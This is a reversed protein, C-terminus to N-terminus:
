KVPEVRTVATLKALEELKRVDITGALMKVARSEGTKTFGLAELAKVTEPSLDSLFIMVDVRHHVVVFGDANLNGDAGDKAVRAALGKLGADLKALPDAPAPDAALAPEAKDLEKLSESRKELKAVDSKAVAGDAAPRQTQQAAVPTAPAVPASSAASASAPMLAPAPMAGGSAGFGRSRAATAMGARGFHDAREGFIGEYSVGEPMEVPVNVTTPKGGKTVTMEEVAVFSTFQTMLGFETGLATLENKLPEPFNGNQLAALDRM